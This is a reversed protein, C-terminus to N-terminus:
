GRSFGKVHRIAESYALPEVLLQKNILRKRTEEAKEKALDFVWKGASYEVLPYEMLYFYAAEHISSTSESM